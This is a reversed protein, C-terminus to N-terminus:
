IQTDTETQYFLKNTGVKKSEVYLLYMYYKSKEIQSLKEM